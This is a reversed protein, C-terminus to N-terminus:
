GAHRKKRHRPITGPSLKVVFADLPTYRSDTSHSQLAHVASLNQSATTGTIYVAGSPTLAIGNGYDAGSGGLFTSWGLHGDSRIEAIFADSCPYTAHGVIGCTSGRFIPQVASRIPFDSSETWGTVYMNHGADVAIGLAEDDLTGGLYTSYRVRGFRDLRAVFADGPLLSNGNGGYTKQFGGVVPFNTAATQGVVYANGDADVTVADAVTVDDGGLHTSYLISKGSPDLKVVYGDIPGILGPPPSTPSPFDGSQTLGAVYADGSADAAIGYAAEALSGALSFRYTLAGDPAVKIVFGHPLSPPANPGGGRSVPVTDGTVYANGLPDLALDYAYDEQPGGFFSSYVISDGRASLRTIFADTGGGITPQFAGATPFDASETAGVVSIGSADVGIGFGEDFGSGGLFTSFVMGTGTANLETVFADSPGGLLSHYQELANRSPFDPSVTLGTVYANGNPGVAIAKGSDGERGGLYTEFSVIPDVILQRRRMYRGTHVAFTSHGAPVYWASVPRRRHGSMQYATPKAQLLPGGRTRLFISGGPNLRARSGGSLRFRIAGFRAGPHVMWDYELSGASSPQSGAAHYRLDIGPYLDHFEVAAYTPIDTTWDRRVRGILYNVVGPLRHLGQVRAHRNSGLFTLRLTSSTSVWTIGAATLFITVRSDHALYVVRPDAQGRNPEFALPLAHPIARANPPPRTCCARVGGTAPAICCAQWSTPSTRAALSPPTSSPSFLAPASM